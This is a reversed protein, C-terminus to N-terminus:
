VDRTEDYVGKKRMEELERLTSEQEKTYHRRGTTIANHQLKNIQSVYVGFTFGAKVIFDDQSSFFRRVLEKARDVSIQKLISHALKYDKGRNVVYDNGTAQKFADTFYAILEAQTTSVKGEPTGDDERAAARLINKENKDNKDNKDNKYTDNQQRGTTMRNDNQQRVQQRDEDERQQYADYKCITVISFKNTSKIDCFGVNKLLALKDRVTSPTMGTDEALSFRGVIVQGRELTVERKNMIFKTPKHNSRQILHIALHLAYSDKYFSTEEIKRWVKIWGNNDVDDGIENDVFHFPVM